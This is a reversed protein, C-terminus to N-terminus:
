RHSTLHAHIIALAVPRVNRGATQQIGDVIGWSNFFSGGSNRGCSALSIRSFIMEVTALVPPCRAGLRPTTSSAM